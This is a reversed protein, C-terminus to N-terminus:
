TFDWPKQLVHQVTESVNQFLLGLSKLLGLASPFSGICEEGLPAPFRAWFDHMKCFLLTPKYQSETSGSRTESCKVDWINSLHSNNCVWSKFNMKFCFCPLRKGLQETNHYLILNTHSSSYSISPFFRKSSQFKFSIFYFWLYMIQSKM